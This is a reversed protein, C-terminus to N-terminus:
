LTHLGEFYIEAYKKDHPANDNKQQHYIHIYELMCQQNSCKQNIKYYM